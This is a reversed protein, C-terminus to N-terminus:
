IESLKPTVLLGTTKETKEPKRQSYVQGGCYFPFIKSHPM